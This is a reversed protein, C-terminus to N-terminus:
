KYLNVFGKRIRAFDADDIRGIRRYLRKISMVRAQALVAYEDKGAHKFHVYWSGVHKKSTLPVGMFHYAGLKKYILVPRAFNKGKGYIEAGLNEGVGAWYLYGEHPISERGYLELDLKTEFWSLLRDIKAIKELKEEDNM